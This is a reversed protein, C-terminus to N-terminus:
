PRFALAYIRTVQDRGFNDDSQLLLTQRGGPLVPGLAVSEINDLLPNAQQGHGQAGSPPCASLDAVLTKPLPPLAPDNLTARDTVDAAGALAVRFLRITNGLGPIFGRELVLLDAPGLAAIDAVGQAPEALYFYQAVPAYAGSPGRDYRLLRLRARLISFGDPALPGENITLLAGGSPALAASEFTLNDTAEGNPKVLFRPPM